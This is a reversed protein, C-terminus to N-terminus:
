QMHTPTTQRTESSRRHLLLAKPVSVTAMEPFNQEARRCKNWCNEPLWTTPAHKYKHNHISKYNYTHTDINSITCKLNNTMYRTISYNIKAQNLQNIKQQKNSKFGAKSFPLKCEMNTMTSSTAQKNIKLTRQRRQQKSQKNHQCM